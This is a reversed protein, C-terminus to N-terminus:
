ERKQKDAAVPRGSAKYQLTDPVPAAPIPMRKRETQDIRVQQPNSKFKGTKTNWADQIMDHLGLSIFIWLLGM